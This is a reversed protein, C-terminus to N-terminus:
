PEPRPTRPHPFAERRWRTLLNVPRAAVLVRRGAALASLSTATGRWLITHDVGPSGVRLVFEGVRDHMGEIAQPGGPRHVLRGRGPMEGMGANFARFRETEIYIAGDADVSHDEWIPLGNVSHHYYLTFREGPEMPLELLPQGGDLPTISLVVGGPLRWVLGTAVLLALILALVPGAKHRAPRLYSM